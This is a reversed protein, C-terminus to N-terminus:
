LTWVFCEGSDFPNRHSLRGPIHTSYLLCPLPYFFEGAKAVIENAHDYCVRCEGELVFVFGNFGAIGNRLEIEQTAIVEIAPSCMEEIFFTYSGTKELTAQNHQDDTHISGPEHNFKM